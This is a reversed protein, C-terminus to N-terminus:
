GIADKWIISARGRFNRLGPDWSGHIDRLPHILRLRQETLLCADLSRLLVRFREVGPETEEREIMAEVRTDSGDKNSVNM